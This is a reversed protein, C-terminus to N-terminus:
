LLLILYNFAKVKLVKRGRLNDWQQEVKKTKKTKPRSKLSSIADFKSTLIFGRFLDRGPGM